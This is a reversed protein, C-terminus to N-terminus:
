SSPQILFWRLMLAVFVLLTIIIAGIGQANEDRLVIAGPHKPPWCEFGMRGFSGLRVFIIATFHCAFELFLWFLLEAILAGM